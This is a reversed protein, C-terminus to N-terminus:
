CKLIEKLAIQLGIGSRVSWPEFWIMFKRDLSERSKFNQGPVSGSLKNTKCSSQLKGLSMFYPKAQEWAAKFHPQLSRWLEVM